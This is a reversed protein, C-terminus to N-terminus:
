NFWLAYGFFNGRFISQWRAWDAQSLSPGDALYPLAAHGTMWLVFDFPRPETFVRSLDFGKEWRWHPVLKRGELAAEIEGMVMLWGDIQEQGVPAFRAAGAQKPNPLWERDDDTEALIAAWSVRSLQAMRKLHDRAAILRAPEVVPWRITHLLGIADALSSSDGFMERRRAFDTERPGAAGAVKPYFRHASIDFTERWDHALGFELFASLLNCYGQLWAADGRDFAVEFPEAAGSPASAMRMAALIAGLRGSEEVKGSSTLDLHVANLDVVIKAEGDVRALAAEAAKLDALFAAHAARAAAYDITQPNPNPPVPLRTMPMPVGPPPRLGFGYQAQGWREVARAFRLLGEGFRAEGDRPDAAKAALAAVGQELGAGAVRGELHARALDASPGAAAPGGLALAFALAAALRRM